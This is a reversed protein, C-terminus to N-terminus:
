KIPSSLPKSKDWNYISNSESENILISDSKANMKKWQWGVKEIENKEKNISNNDINKSWCSSLLLSFIMILVPIFINTLLNKNKKFM